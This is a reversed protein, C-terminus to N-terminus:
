MFAVSFKIANTESAFETKVQSVLTNADTQIKKLEANVDSIGSSLNSVSLGKASNELGQRLERAQRSDLL